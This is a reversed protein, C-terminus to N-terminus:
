LNVHFIRSFTIFQLDFFPSNKMYKGVQGNKYYLIQIFIWIFKIMWWSSKLHHPPWITIWLFMCPYRRTKRASAPTVNHFTSQSRTHDYSAVLISEKTEPSNPYCKPSSCHPLWTFGFCIKGRRYQYLWTWATTLRRTYYEACCNFIRVRRKILQSARKGEGKGM